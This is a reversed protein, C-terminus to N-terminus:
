FFIFTVLIFVPILIPISYKFMYGFFSPMPVGSEEAISKTMFNPANGIYTNAGMFVAGASIALLTGAHVGMLDAPNGGATNFFVLYTPANDLFSSLIGTAWFFHSNIFEGNSDVVGKIVMGMPGDAGARLMAIPTVMTMFITAFLKAVENIPEWNFGNGERISPDSIRLSVITIILLFAVQLVSALPVEVYHLTFATGLKLSSVIVAGIICPILLMNPIGVLRLKEGDAKKVPKNEEKRYYYTDMIFFIVLLVGIIFSVLPLMHKMTWFFDVGKLFGLFLPPDGLPTLGGGVNAVVFIVFVVIHTRNKRWENAKLIPRILLMAAGTTGMFSALFGGILIMITNVKPTGALDGKLQIGGAVTFLALLLTIFPIFELMYVELLYYFGTGISFNACFAGFFIIWWFLSVKGYHHHWFHPTLLPFLAISLLIGVFPIIWLLSLSKGDIHPAAHGSGHDGATGTKAQDTTHTSNEVKVDPQSAGAKTNFIQPSLLLIASVAILSILIKKM